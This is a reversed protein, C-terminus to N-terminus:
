GNINKYKLYKNLLKKYWPLNKEFKINLIDFMYKSGESTNEIFGNWYIRDEIRIEHEALIVGGFEHTTNKRGILITRRELTNVFVDMNAIKGIKRISEFRDNPRFEEFNISQTLLKKLDPSIVIFTAPGFRSCVAINNSCSIILKYCIYFIDFQLNKIIFFM